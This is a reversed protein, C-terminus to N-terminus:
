MVVGGSCIEKM